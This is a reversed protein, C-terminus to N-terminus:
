KIKNSVTKYTWQKEAPAKSDKTFRFDMEKAGSDMCGSLASEIASEKDSFALKSSKVNEVKAGSLDDYEDDSSCGTLPAAILMLSALSVIIKTM